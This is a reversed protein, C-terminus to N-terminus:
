TPASRPRRGVLMAAATASVAACVLFGPRYGGALAALGAFVLPGAVVGGFTVFGSAGTVAGAQGAPARRALESLQVGNWGIATAGYVAVLPLVTWAPWAPGAFALAIGSAASVAAALALTRTPALWRDAVVGWFIRGIVASTTACTLALGAAVLSWQLVDALYTVLFSTLSVQVSAFAFGALSLERLGPSGMVTRLPALVAALSFAAAPAHRRDLSKRTPEAGAAVLVGVLAVAVFAFRWGALLAVGPLAAGALAIGAPVGTQKVSFTLAMRDVPTTRVLIESSAATIPGYGIGMAFAAAALVPVASAPLLAVAGIGAACALVCVQSVRIAGYRAIFEGCALSGLMAGAYMLSVFVGIWKPTVALDAALAPALVAPAASTLATFVQIALTAVLAVLATRAGPDRM